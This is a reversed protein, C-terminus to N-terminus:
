GFAAHRKGARILLGVMLQRWAIFCTQGIEHFVFDLIQRQKGNMQCQVQKNAM